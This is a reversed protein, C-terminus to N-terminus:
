APQLPLAEVQLRGPSLLLHPARPPLDLGAADTISNELIRAWAPCLRWPRHRIDGRYLRENPGVTFFSYRETLFYELTGPGFVGELGSSGYEARFVAPPAGPHIRRSEYLIRAGDRRANMRARYYPLHFGLRAGAVALTGGADLSFFYIGPRGRYRVYTRLNLEPFRSVVPLAPLGSPRLDDLVFPTLGLWARGGWADLELCAPVRPRLLEPPLPWHAFLLDNWGQRLVVSGRWALAHLADRLM